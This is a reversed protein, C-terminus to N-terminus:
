KEWIIFCSKKKTEYKENIKNFIFVDSHGLNGGDFILKGEYILKDKVLGYTVPINYSHNGMVVKDYGNKEAYQSLNDFTYQTIKKISEERKGAIGLRSLELSNCVLVKEKKNKTFADFALVLGMRKKTEKMNYTYNLAFLHTSEEKLYHPISWANTNDNKKDIGLCCGSDNGFTVDLPDKELKELYYDVKKKKKLKSPCTLASVDILNDFMEKLTECSERLQNKIEEPYDINPFSNPNQLASEASYKNNTIRNDSLLHLIGEILRQFYKTESFLANVFTIKMNMDSKLLTNLDDSNLGDYSDVLDIYNLINSIISDEKDSDMFEIYDQMELEEVKEVIKSQIKHKMNYEMEKEFYKYLNKPEDRCSDIIELIRRKSQDSVGQWNKGESDPAFLNMIHDNLQEETEIDQPSNDRKSIESLEEIFEHSFCEEMIRILFRSAVYDDSMKISREFRNVSVLYGNLFSQFNEDTIEFKSQISDKYVLQALKSDNKLVSYSYEDILRSSKYGLSRIEILQKDLTILNEIKIRLNSKISISSFSFSDIKNLELNKLDNADDLQTIIENYFVKSDSNSQFYYDKLEENCNNSYILKFVREHTSSIIFNFYSYSDSTQETHVANKEMGNKRFEEALLSNYYKKDKPTEGNNESM